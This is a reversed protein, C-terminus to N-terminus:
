IMEGIGKKISSDDTGSVIRLNNKLVERPMSESGGCLLNIVTSISNSEYDKVFVGNQIIGQEELDRKLKYAGPVSTMFGPSEKGVKSGALVKCKKTPCNREDKGAEILADSGSKTYKWIFLGNNNITPTVEVPDEAKFTSEKPLKTEPSINAKAPLEDSANEIVFLKNGRVEDPMSVSGGYMLVIIKSITDPHYDQVFEDNIIIGADELKRKLRFAPLTKFNEAESAVRSGKLVRCPNTPCGREDMGAEILADAGKGIYKWTKINQNNETGISKEIDKSVHEYNITKSASNQHEKSTYDDDHQITTPKNENKSVSTTKSETKPKTKIESDLLGILKEDFVEEGITDIITAYLNEYFNKDEENYRNENQGFLLYMENFIEQCARWNLKNKKYLRKGKEKLYNREVMEDYYIDFQQKETKYSLNKVKEKTGDDHYEDYTKDGLGTSYMKEKENLPKISELNVPVVPKGIDEDKDRKPTQTDAEDTQSYMLEMITAYSTTYRNSIFALVGHCLPCEMNQQVQTTWLAGKKAFDADFYVRLGYQNVLNYVITSLVTADNDSKYSIFVYPAENKNDKNFIHRSLSNYKEDEGKLIKESHAM